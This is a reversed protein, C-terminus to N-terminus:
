DDNKKTMIISFILLLLSAFIFTMIHGWVDIITRSKVEHTILEIKPTNDGLFLLTNDLSTLHIQLEVFSNNLRGILRNLDVKKILIPNNETRYRSYRNNTKFKDPVKLEDLRAKLESIGAYAYNIASIEKHRLQYYLEEETVNFTLFQSNSIPNIILQNIKKAGKILRIQDEDQINIQFIHYAVGEGETVTFKLKNPNKWHYGMEERLTANIYQRLVVTNIEYDKSFKFIAQSTYFSTIHRFLFSSMIGICILSLLIVSFYKSKIM